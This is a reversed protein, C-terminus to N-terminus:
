LHEALFDAVVHRNFEVLGHPDHRLLAEADTFSAHTANTPTEVRREGTSNALLAQWSPTPPRSGVLLFPRDVGDTAVSSLNTGDDDFGISLQGDFNVAARVRPDDHMAQLAAFGGASHGVVAVRSRDVLGDPLSDLVFRVDAVRTDVIGRLLDLTPERDFVVSRAVRGDPFEVGSSEYTHDVTVVVYGRSALDDVLSGNFTRSDGLGPSYIVVPRPGGSTDPAANRHAHTRVAAWDFTGPEVGYNFRGALDGFAAAEGATMQRAREGQGPLAPYRVDVMLERFPQGGLFDKRGQDVLRLSVVGVASEGTPEPLM